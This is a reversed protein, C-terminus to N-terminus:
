GQGKAVDGEEGHTPNAVSAESSAREGELAKAIAVGRGSVAKVM